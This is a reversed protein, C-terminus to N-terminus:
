SSSVGDLHSLINSDVDLLAASYLKFNTVLVTLSTFNVKDVASYKYKALSKLNKESIEQRYWEM